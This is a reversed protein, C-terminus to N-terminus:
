HVQQEIVAVQAQALPDSSLADSGFPIYTTTEESSSSSFNVFSTADLLPPGQEEDDLEVEEQQEPMCFKPQEEVEMPKPQEQEAGMAWHGWGDGAEANDHVNPQAPGPSFLPVPLAHGPMPHPDVGEDPVPDEDPPGGGLLNQQLVEVLFTCSEANPRSSETMRISRPIDELNTVRVKVLVRGKINPDREWLLFSVIDSFCANLDETKMHDLPPSVLLMWVDRNFSVGRWDSGEDHKVFSVTVDGFQNPSFSILRDRDIVNRFQAYAAGFPCPQLSAFSVRAEKTLYEALVDRINDFPILGEPFPDFTAITYQKYERPRCPVVV